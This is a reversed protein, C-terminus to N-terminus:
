KKTIVLRIQDIAIAALYFGITVGVWLVLQPVPDFRHAYPRLFDYRVVLDNLMYVGLTSLALHNIVKNQFRWSMMFLFFAVSTLLLIPNNYGWVNWWPLSHGYAVSMTCGGWVAAFGIYGALNYWRYRCLAEPTFVKRLFGGLLYLYVFHAITYGNTDFADLQRFSGFYISAVTLLGVAYGLQRKDMHGIAANLVPAILFLGLYCNMFWLGGHSFPFVVRWLTDLSLFNPYSALLCYFAYTLYLNLFGKWRTKIGFWGSILIFCNVGIYICAYSSLILHTDWGKGIIDLPVIEPYLAHICFHHMLIAVICLIRLLEANSERPVPSTNMTTERNLM